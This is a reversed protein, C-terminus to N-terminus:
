RESDRTKWEDDVKLMSVSLTSMDKAPVKPREFIMGISSAISHRKVFVYNENSWLIRCVTFRRCRCRTTASFHSHSLSTFLCMCFLLDFYFHQRKMTNKGIEAKEEDIRRRHQRHRKWEWKKTGWREPMWSNKRETTPLISLMCEFKVNIKDMTRNNNTQINTWAGPCQFRCYM